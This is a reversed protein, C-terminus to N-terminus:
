HFLDVLYSGRRHDRLSINFEKRMQVNFGPRTQVSTSHTPTNPPRTSHPWSSKYGHKNMYSVVGTNLRLRRPSTFPKFTYQDRCISLHSQQTYRSLISNILGVVHLSMFLILLAIEILHNVLYAFPFRRIWVRNCSM